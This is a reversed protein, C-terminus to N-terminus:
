QLEQLLVRSESRKSPHLWGTLVFIFFSILAPGAVSYILNGTHEVISAPMAWHLIAFSGIGAIWAAIAASAGCRAFQPLLGLLMPVAIPGVLAGYWLLILGLIGGMHNALLAVIMSGCLFILTCIRGALLLKKESSFWHSPLIDPAIDRVIVASVANADSSTMAMSHAILGALVLGILGSPLLRQALLAYSDSPNSLHPLLIPAVWMPYFLILPWVFYLAASLWASRRASQADPAAMFRQALSWTGGNYSLLNVFLFAASFGLTYQGHFPLHNNAPLRQWINFIARVGGLRALVAIFISIGSVFQIVFQSFDAAADAWLGGAVSYVLTVGGVLLVGFAPALNAFLFLLFAAASIKAGVDFIKLASGSCALCLRTRRGYRTGLFELPSIMGTQIRLKVWRVAFVNAGLLLALGISCAWWFYLSIGETYALSAYGVFVAASYGSMHHSIGSLWWPMNGGATFFDRANKVRRRIVVGVVVMLLFYLGLMLWDLTKM